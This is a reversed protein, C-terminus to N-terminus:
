SGRLKGFCLQAGWRKNDAGRRRTVDSQKMSAVRTARAAKNIRSSSTSLFGVRLAAHPVDPQCFSLDFARTQLGAVVPPSLWDDRDERCRAASRPACRRTQPISPYPALGRPSPIRSRGGLAFSHLLAPPGADLPLHPFEPLRGGLPIARHRRTIGGRRRV